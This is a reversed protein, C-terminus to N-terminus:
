LGALGRGVCFYLVLCVVLAPQLLYNNERPEGPVVVEMQQWFVILNKKRLSVAAGKGTVTLLVASLAGRGLSRPSKM